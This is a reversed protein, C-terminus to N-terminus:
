DLELRCGSVQSVWKAMARSYRKTDHLKPATNAELIFPKGDAVILDVAGFDLGLAKVAKVAEARLTQYNEVQRERERVDIYVLDWGTEFNWILDNSHEGEKRVKQALGICKDQFIHFRYEATKNLCQVYYGSRRERPLRDTPKLRIIDKGQTHHLRRRLYDCGLDQSGVRTADYSTWFMPVNVKAELMMQHAIRKNLITNLVRSRNLTAKALEDLHAMRPSGWRIVLDNEEPEAQENRVLGIDSRELIPKLGAIIRDPTESQSIGCDVWYVTKPKAM